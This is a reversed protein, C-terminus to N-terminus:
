VPSVTGKKRVLLLLFFVLKIVSKIKVLAPALVNSWHGYLLLDLLLQLGHDAVGHKYTPRLLWCGYKISAEKFIRV